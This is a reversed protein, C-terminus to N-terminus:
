YLGYSQSVVISFSRLRVVVHSGPGAWFHCEPDKIWRKLKEDELEDTRLVIRYALDGTPLPEDKRGVFLERCKSWLGDAAVILDGSFSRGGVTKVSTKEFDIAEVRQGLFFEVGVEKAREVLAMQLDARHMDIFPAGYREMIKGNFSDQQALIEGSYKHVTLRTPM